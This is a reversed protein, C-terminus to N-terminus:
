AVLVSIALATVVVVVAALYLLARAAGADSEALGCAEPTPCPTRGQHGTCSM